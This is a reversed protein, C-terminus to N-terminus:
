QNNINLSLKNQCCNSSRYQCNLLVMCNCLCSASSQPRLFSIGSCIRSATQSSLRIYSMLWCPRPHHNYRLTLLQLRVFIYLFTRRITTFLFFINCKGTQFVKSLNQNLDVLFKFLMLKLCYVNKKCQLKSITLYTTIEAAAFISIQFLSNSFMLLLRCVNNFM